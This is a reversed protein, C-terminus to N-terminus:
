RIRWMTCVYNPQGMEALVEALMFRLPLIRARYLNVLELFINLRSRAQPQIQTCGYISTQELIQTLHMNWYSILSVSLSRRRLRLDWLSLSEKEVRISTILLTKCFMGLYIQVGGDFLIPDRNTFRGTSADYDRGANYAFSNGLKNIEGGGFHCLKTDTYYYGGLELRM